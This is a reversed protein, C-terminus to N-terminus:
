GAEEPSVTLRSRGMTQVLHVLTRRNVTVRFQGNKEEVAGIRPFALFNLVEQIEGEDTAPGGKRLDRVLDRLTLWGESYEAEELLADVVAREVAFRREEEQRAAEIQKERTAPDRAPDLLLDLLEGTLPVTQRSRVVAALLGTHLVAVKGDKRAATLVREHFAPGILLTAEAKLKERHEALGELDVAKREVAGTATAKAEVAFTRKRLGVGLRVAGDTRGSGGLHVGELGLQELAAVAAKELRVHDESERAAIELEAAVEEATARPGHGPACDAAAGTSRPLASIVSDPPLTRLFARGLPTAQYTKSTIKKVLGCSELLHLRANVAAPTLGDDVCESSHRVLSSTSVTETGLVALIEGFYRIASHIIRALDLPDDEALWAEAAAAPTWANEGVRTLLGLASVADLVTSVSSVAVPKGSVKDCLQGFEERTVEPRSGAVLTRLARLRGNDDKSGPIYLNRGTGRTEWGKTAREEWLSTVAAAARAVSPSASEEPSRAGGAPEGLVLRGLLTRGADTLRAKGDFYAIMGTVRLWITRQRVPTVTQWSFGYAEKGLRLLDELGLPGDSLAALLEGVFAVHRHFTGVLLDHQGTRRWDLATATPVVRSGERAVVGVSGLRRVADRVTVSDGEDPWAIRDTAERGTGLQDILRRLAALQQDNGGPLLPLSDSRSALPSLTGTSTSDLSPTTM